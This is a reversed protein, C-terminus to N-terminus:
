NQELFDTNLLNNLIHNINNKIKAINKEKYSDRLNEYLDKM